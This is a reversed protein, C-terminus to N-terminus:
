PSLLLTGAREKLAAERDLSKWKERRDNNTADISVFSSVLLFSWHEKEQPASPFSPSILPWSVFAEADQPHPNNLESLM